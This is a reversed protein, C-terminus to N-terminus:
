LSSVGSLHPGPQAWSLVPEPKGPCSAPSTGMQGPFQSLPATPSQPSWSPFCPGDLWPLLSDLAWPLASVGELMPPFHGLTHPSECCGPCGM